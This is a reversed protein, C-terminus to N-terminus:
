CSAPTASSWARGRRETMAQEFSPSLDMDQLTARVEDALAVADAQSRADTRPPVLQVAKAVDKSMM